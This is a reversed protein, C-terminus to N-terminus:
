QGFLTYLKAQTQERLVKTPQSWDIDGIMDIAEEVDDEGGPAIHTYDELALLSTYFKQACTDRVKPFTHYLLFLLTKIAKSCLESDEYSLMNALVGVAAMLKVINKSKNCEQVTLAHLDKLDATLEAEAMYDTELIMEITKMLPITVRDDRLNSEFVKKLKCLLASKKAIDGKMKSIYSFLTKSSAKLTSETLGGSSTVLGRFIQLSYTESDFFPMLQDFVFDASRWPLYGIGQDHIQTEYAGGDAPVDSIEQVFLATLADKEAFDPANAAVTKFFIQLQRGAVERIRDIKEM